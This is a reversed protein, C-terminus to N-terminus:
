HLMEGMKASPTRSSPQSLAGGERGRSAIKVPQAIRKWTVARKMEPIYRRIHRYAERSSNNQIVAERARAPTTVPTIWKVKEGTIKGRAGPSRERGCEIGIMLARKAMM